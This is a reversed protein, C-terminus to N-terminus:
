LGIVELPIVVQVFHKPLKLPLTSDVIPTLGFYQECVNLLNDNYVGGLARTMIGREILRATEVGLLVYEPKINFKREVFIQQKQIEQWICDFKYSLEQIEQIKEAFDM